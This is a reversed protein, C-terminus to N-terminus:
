RNGSLTRRQADDLDIANWWIVVLLIPPLLSRLTASVCLPQNYREGNDNAHVALAGRPIQDPPLYPKNLIAGMLGGGERFSGSCNM